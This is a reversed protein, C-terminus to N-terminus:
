DMVETKLIAISKVDTYQVGPDEMISEWLTLAWVQQNSEPLAVPLCNM